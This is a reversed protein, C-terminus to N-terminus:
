RSLINVIKGRIQKKKVNVQNLRVLVRDGPALKDFRLQFCSVDVGPELNVFVYDAIGSVIGEHEDNVKYRLTCDPWPSPQLAKISATVKKSESVKLIKVEIDEGGQYLDYLSGIWGHAVEELPVVANIGGLDVQLDYRNVKRVKAPLVADVKVKPWNKQAALELAALRNASFMKSEPDYGSVMFIIPQGASRRMDKLDQFGSDELPLLGEYKGIKVIGIVQKGSRRIATLKAQVVSKNQYAGVISPWYDVEAKRLNQPNFGEIMAGVHEHKMAM